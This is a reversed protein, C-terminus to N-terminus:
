IKLFVKMKYLFYLFAWELGVLCIAMVVANYPNGIWQGLWQFIATNTYDWDIFTGSMYILLSNMGIVRFFFSWKKIGRVDIVWYFLALLLLSLGGAMLVFSSTWLNKNIPFVINWVQALFLCASGALTLRLARRAPSLFSHILFSGALIGLLGTGIAPITSLLGEPDHIDRYLKGPLLLTDVYSVFNGQMTLDGRHFGPAANLLLLLWYGTLLGCFWGGMILMRRGPRAYLYIIAAFGYALGIRGLVSAFRMQSLPHLQLGENNYIIGLLVLLLARRVVRWLLRRRSVGKELARELSYPTAVGAIFLFLPFILDYFHFGNWDPHTFQDSLAIWCSSGTAKAMTHVIDEAGIIWFMDFGRLADLSDLRRAPSSAGPGPDRLDHGPIQTEL